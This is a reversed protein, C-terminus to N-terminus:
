LNEASPAEVTTHVHGWPERIPRLTELSLERPFSARPLHSSELVAAGDTSQPQPREQENGLPRQRGHNGVHIRKMVSNGSELVPTLSLRNYVIPSTANFSVQLHYNM